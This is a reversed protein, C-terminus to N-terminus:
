LSAFLSVNLQKVAKSLEVQLAKKELDSAQKMEKQQLKHMTQLETAQQHLQKAKEKVVNKMENIQSIQTTAQAQVKKYNNELKKHEKQLDTLLKDNKLSLLVVPKKGKEVKEKPVSKEPVLRAIGVEDDDDSSSKSGTNKFARRKSVRLPQQRRQLDPESM